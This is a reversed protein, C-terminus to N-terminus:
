GLARRLRAAEILYRQTYEAPRSELSALVASTLGRHVADVEGGYRAALSRYAPGLYREIAEDHAYRLAAGLDEEMSPYTERLFAQDDDDLAAM